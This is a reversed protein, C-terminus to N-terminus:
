VVTIAINASSFAFRRNKGSPLLTNTYTGLLSTSFGANFVLCNNDIQQVLTALDNVNLKEYVGPVYLTPLQSLINATLPVNLGDLSSASFQVYVTDTVVTDWNVIFSSGDLQIITYSQAGRMNCGSGRKKYISNAIEASSGSGGVVVWISHGNTGDSDVSDTKNEYIKTYTVGNINQLSAQLGSVFGSSSLAVSKQRRIKLTYDSEESIGIVSQSSPNNVSSVGLVITVSTTITNIITLNAGPSIAQFNYINTGISVGIVTNVLQWKNGALDQITYVPQITQDLGYLNLGISTVITIPTISYTGAQRKIGNIAVRQDLLVGIATDPNFSSNSQKVLDLVDLVVQIFIMMMQGDPSDSSISIGAGYITQYASTFKAILEAQTATQLGSSDIINPM